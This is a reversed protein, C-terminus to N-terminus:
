VEGGTWVKTKSLHRGRATRLPPYGSRHRAKRRPLEGIRADNAGVAIWDIEGEEDLEVQGDGCGRGESSGGDQDESANKKDGGGGDDVFGSYEFVRKDLGGQGRVPTERVYAVADETRRRELDGFTGCRFLGKVGGRKPGGLNEERVRGSLKRGDRMEACLRTLCELGEESRDGAFGPHSAARVYADYALDWLGMARYAHGRFM